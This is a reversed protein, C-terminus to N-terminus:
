ISVIPGLTLENTESVTSILLHDYGAYAAILSWSSWTSAVAELRQVGAQPVEEVDRIAEENESDEGDDGNSAQGALPKQGSIKEADHRRSLAEDSRRSLRIAEM